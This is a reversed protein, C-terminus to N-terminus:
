ARVQLDAGTYRKAHGARGLYHNSGALVEWAESVQYQQFLETLAGQAKERQRAGQGKKTM